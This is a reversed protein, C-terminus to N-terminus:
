YGVAIWSADIASVAVTGGSSVSRGRAAFATTSKGTAHAVFAQTGSPAPSAATITVSLCATPFATPFTVGIDGATVTLYGWQLIAGNPFKQYGNSTLSNAFDGKIVAMMARASDNVSAPSMGEPWSIGSASDATANSSATTSWSSVPM